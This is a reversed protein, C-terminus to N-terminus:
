KSDPLLLYDGLDVGFGIRSLSVITEEKSGSILEIDSNFAAFRLLIDVTCSTCDIYVGTLTIVTM